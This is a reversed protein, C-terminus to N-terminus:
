PMVPHTFCFGHLLTQSMPARIHDPAGSKSDWRAHIGILVPCHLIKRAWPLYGLMHLRQKRHPWLNVAIWVEIHCGFRARRDLEASPNETCGDSEVPGLLRPLDANAKEWCLCGVPDEWRLDTIQTRSTRHM